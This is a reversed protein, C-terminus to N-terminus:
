MQSQATITEAGVPEMPEPTPAESWAEEALRKITLSQAWRDFTEAGNEPPALNVTFPLIDGADSKELWHSFAVTWLRKYQQALEGEGAAIDDQVQNGYSIRGELASCRRAIQEFAQWIEEPWPGTLNASLVYQSFDASLRLKKNRDLVKITRRLDQTVSGRHTQILLPLGTDNTLGYMDKLIEAIDPSARLSGPVRVSLYEARMRHVLDITPLLDDADAAVACLGLPLNREHALAALEDAELSTQIHAEIGHFGASILEDLRQPLTWEPGDRPLRSMSSLNIQPRLRPPNTSGDSIINRFGM